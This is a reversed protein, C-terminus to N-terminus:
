FPFQFNLKSEFEGDKKIDANLGISGLGAKTQWFASGNTLQRDRNVDAEVGITGLFSATSLKISGGDFVTNEDFKGRVGINAGFALKTNWSADIGGLRTQEDIKIEANFSGILANTGIKVNGGSFGVERDLNGAIAMSGFSTQAKWAVDGEKFEAQLDFNGKFELSGLPTAKHWSAVTGVPKFRDSVDVALDFSGLFNEASWLANGKTFRATPNFNGNFGLSGFKTKAQWSAIGAKFPINFPIIEEGNESFYDFISENSYESNTKLKSVHNFKSSQHSFVKSTQALSQLASQETIDSSYKAILSETNSTITCAAPILSSNPQLQSPELLIISTRLLVQIASLCM